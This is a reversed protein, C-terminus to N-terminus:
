ERAASPFQLLSIKEAMDRQAAFVLEVTAIRSQRAHFSVADDGLLRGGVFANL